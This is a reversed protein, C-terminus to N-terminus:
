LCLNEYSDEMKLKVIYLGDQFTDVYIFGRDDVLCDETIAVKSGPLLTGDENNFLDVEPDPPMFYAIEKPIFPDTTDFVRLGAGFYCNYILGKYPEYCDKGFADFLNHPGFPVRVGDVINFNKGHTYGVPVEPYPFISILSPNTPDTTEVIGITNMPQTVLKKFLGDKNENSFYRPREGETSVVAYPLDGLPMYTHISMGAAGGGFPPNMPLYGILQPNTPDSVDIQCAGFNAVAAYCIHDKVTVAHVTAMELFEKSGFAVHGGGPKNARYQNDAWWSDDRPDATQNNLLLRVHDNVMDAVVPDFASVIRADEGLAAVITILGFAILRRLAHLVPHEGIAPDFAIEGLVEIVRRFDRHIRFQRTSELDRSRHAVVGGVPGHGEAVVAAELVQEEHRLGLARQITEFQATDLVALYGTSFSQEVLEIECISGTVLLGSGILGQKVFHFCQM